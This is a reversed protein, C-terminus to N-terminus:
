NTNAQNLEEVWKILQKGRDTLRVSEVNQVGNSDEGEFCIYGEFRGFTKNEPMCYDMSRNKIINNLERFTDMRVKLNAQSHPVNNDDIAKLANYLSKLEEALKDNGIFM